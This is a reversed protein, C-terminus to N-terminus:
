HFALYQLSVDCSQLINMCEGKFVKEHSFHETQEGVVEWNTSLSINPLRVYGLEGGGTATRVYDNYCKCEHRLPSFYGAILYKCCVVVISLVLQICDVYFNIQNM